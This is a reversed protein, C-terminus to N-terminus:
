EAFAGPESDGPNTLRMRLAHVAAAARNPVGLKNLILHVQNQVTAPSTSRAFAIQKNTKGEAIGVLVELEAPTLEDTRGNGNSQTTSGM